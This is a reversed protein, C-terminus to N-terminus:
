WNDLINKIIDKPNGYLLNIKSSVYDLKEKQKTIVIPNKPDLYLDHEPLYFDPFYKRKKNKLDVWEISDQPVIWAINNQDLFIAMQVEWKSDFQINKYYQRKIGSANRKKTTLYCKDSCITTKKQSSFLVGCCSCPKIYIRSYPGWAIKSVPIFKQIKPPKNSVFKGFTEICWKKNRQRGKNNFTASCSRNCFKKNKDIKEQCNLCINM